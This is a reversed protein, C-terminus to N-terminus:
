IKERLYHFCFKMFPVTIKSLKENKLEKISQHNYRRKLSIQATGEIFGNSKISHVHNVGDM